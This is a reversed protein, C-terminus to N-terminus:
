DISYNIYKHCWDGVQQDNSCCLPYVFQNRSVKACKECMEKHEPEKDCLNDTKLDTSRLYNTFSEAIPSSYTKRIQTQILILIIM